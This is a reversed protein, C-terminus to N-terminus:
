TVHRAWSFKPLLLQVSILHFITLLRVESQIYNDEL